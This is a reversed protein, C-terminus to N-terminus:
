VHDRGVGSGEIAWPSSSVAAGLMPSSDGLDRHVFSAPRSLSM